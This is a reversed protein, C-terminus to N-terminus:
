RNETGTSIISNMLFLEYIVTSHSPPTQSNPAAAAQLLFNPRRRAGGMAGGVLGAVVVSGLVMVAMVAIVVYIAISNLM